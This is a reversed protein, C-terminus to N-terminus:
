VFGNLGKIVINGISNTNQTKSKMPNVYIDKTDINKYKPKTSKNITKPTMYDINDRNRELAKKRQAKIRNKMKKPRRVDHRIYGNDTEILQVGPQGYNDTKQRHKHRYSKPRSIVYKPMLTTTVIDEDLASESTKWFLQKKPPM